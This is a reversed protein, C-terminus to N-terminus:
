PRRVPHLLHRRLGLLRAQDPSWDRLENGATVYLVRTM